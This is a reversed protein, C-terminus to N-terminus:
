ALGSACAYAKRPIAPIARAKPRRSKRGTGNGPRPAGAAPATRAESTLTATEFAWFRKHVASSFAEAQLTPTRCSAAAAFTGIHRDPAHHRCKPGGAPWDSEFVAIDVEAPWAVPAAPFIRADMLWDRPWGRDRVTLIDALM